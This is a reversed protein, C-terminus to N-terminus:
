KLAFLRGAALRQFIQQLMKNNAEEATVSRGGVGVADCNVYPQKPPQQSKAPTRRLWASAAAIMQDTGKGRQM